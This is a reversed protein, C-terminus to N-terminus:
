SRLKQPGPRRGTGSAPSVSAFRHVSVSVSPHVARSSAAYCSCYGCVCYCMARLTLRILVVISSNYSAVYCMAVAGVVQLGVQVSRSALMMGHFLHGCQLWSHSGSVQMIMPSSQSVINHLQLWQYRM